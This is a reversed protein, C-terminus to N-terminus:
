QGPIFHNPLVPWCVRTEQVRGAVEGLKGNTTGWELNSAQRQSQNTPRPGRQERGWGAPDRTNEAVHKWTEM